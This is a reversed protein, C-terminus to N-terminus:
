QEDIWYHCHSISSYVFCLRVVCYNAAVHAKSFTRIQNGANLLLFKALNFNELNGYKPLGREM